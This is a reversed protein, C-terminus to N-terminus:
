GEMGRTWSRGFNKWGKSMPRGIQFSGGRKGVSLWGILLFYLGQIVIISGPREKLDAKTKLILENIKYPKRNAEKWKASVLRTGLVIKFFKTWFM